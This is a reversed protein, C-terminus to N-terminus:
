HKRCRNLEHTQHNTPRMSLHDGEKSLCLVRLFNAPCRRCNALAHTSAVYLLYKCKGGAAM